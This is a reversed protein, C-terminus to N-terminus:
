LTVLFVIQYFSVFIQGDTITGASCFITAVSNTIILNAYQEIILIAPEM